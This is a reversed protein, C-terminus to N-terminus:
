KSFCNQSLIRLIGVEALTIGGVFFVLIRVAGNDYFSISKGPKYQDSFFKSVLKTNKIISEIIRVSLPIYGQLPQALPSGESFLEFEKSISSWKYQFPSVSLLKMRDLNVLTEQCNIGFTSCIEKHIKILGKKSKATGVVSELFLFRLATM